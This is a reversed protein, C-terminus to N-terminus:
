SEKPPSMQKFRSYLKIFIEINPALMDGTSTIRYIGKNINQGVGQTHVAM